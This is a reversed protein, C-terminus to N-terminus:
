DDNDVRIGGMLETAPRTANNELALYASRKRDEPCFLCNSSAVPHASGSLTPNEENSRHTIRGEGQFFM